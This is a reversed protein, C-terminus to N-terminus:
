YEQAEPQELGAVSTDNDDWGAVQRSSSLPPLYRTQEIQADLYRNWVTILIPLFFMGLLFAFRIRCCIAELM